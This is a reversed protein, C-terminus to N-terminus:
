LGLVGGVGGSIVKHRGKLSPSGDTKAVGVDPRAWDGIGSIRRGKDSEEVSYYGQSGPTPSVIARSARGCWSPM